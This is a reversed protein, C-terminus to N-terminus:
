HLDHIQALNEAFLEAVLTGEANKIGESVCVLCKNANKKMVADVDSVFKDIDFAVEPLYIM